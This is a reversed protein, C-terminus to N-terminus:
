RFAVFEFKSFVIPANKLKLPMIEYIYLGCEIAFM